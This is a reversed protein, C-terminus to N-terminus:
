SPNRPALRSEAIRLARLWSQLLLAAWRGGGRHHGSAVKETSEEMREGAGSMPPAFREGERARAGGSASARRAGGALGAAAFVLAKEPELSAKM